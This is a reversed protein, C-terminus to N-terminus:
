GEQPDPNLDATSHIRQIRLVAHMRQVSMVSMCEPLHEYVSFLLLHFLEQYKKRSGKKKKKSLTEVMDAQSAEFESIQSHRRLAPALPM